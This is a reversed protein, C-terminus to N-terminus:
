SVLETTHSCIICDKNTHTHTPPPNVTCLLVTCSYFFSPFFSFLSFFLWKGSPLLLLILVKLWKNLHWGALGSSEEAEHVRQCRFYPDVYQCGVQQDAEGQEDHSTERGVLPVVGMRAMCFRVYHLILERHGVTEPEDGTGEQSM